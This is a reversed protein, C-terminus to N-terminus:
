ASIRRLARAPKENAVKQPPATDSEEEDASDEEDNALGDEKATVTAGSIDVDYLKALKYEHAQEELMTEFDRGLSRCINQRSNIGLALEKGAAEIEKLGDIWPWRRGQFRVEM